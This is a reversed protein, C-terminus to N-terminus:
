PLSGMIAAAVLGLTVLWGVTFNSRFRTACNGRHDPNLTIIQWAFHGAVAALMLWLALSERGAAVGALGLLVVAGGYCWWLPTKQTGWYLATSKVGLKADETRDQHAYITDYGLTWFIGAAYLLLGPIFLAADLGPLRTQTLGAVTEIGHAYGLIAGWNFALGLFFQPWWTVRKMLPYIVVMPLIAAALLVIKYGLLWAVALGIGSLVLMFILAARPSIDGSALPRDRTRTVQADLKRDFLDNLACGAARMVVAGLLFLAYDGLRREGALALGWWCPFCLLWFGIPRDLRALHAYPVSQSWMVRMRRLFRAQFKDFQETHSM